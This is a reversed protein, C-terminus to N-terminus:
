DRMSEATQELGALLNQWEESVAIEDDGVRRWRAAAGEGGVLEWLGGGARLPEELGPFRDTLSGVSETTPGVAGTLVLMWWEDQDASDPGPARVVVDPPRDDRVTAEDVVPWQDQAYGLEEDSFDITLVHQPEFDVLHGIRLATLRQPRNRLRGRARGDGHSDVVQVWMREVHGEGESDVHPGYVFGLKVLEGPRLDGRRERPPIFFSRPHMANMAEGDQLWWGTPDPLERPLEAPLDEPNRHGTVMTAVPHEEGCIACRALEQGAM